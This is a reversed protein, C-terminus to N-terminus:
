VVELDWEIARAWLNSPREWKFHRLEDEAIFDSSPAGLLEIVNEASQGLLFLDWPFPFLIRRILEQDDNWWSDRVDIPRNASTEEHTNCSLVVVCLLFPLRTM